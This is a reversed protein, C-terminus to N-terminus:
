RINELTCRISGLTFVLDMQVPLHQSDNTVWARLTERREGYKYDHISIEICDYTKGNDAKIKKRGEYKIYQTVTMLGNVMPVKLEKGAMFDKATFGTGAVKVTSNTNQTEISRLMTILSLLDYIEQTDDVKKTGLVKGDNQVAKLDATYKAASNGAAAGNAAPQTSNSQSFIATEIDHRKNENTAKRYFIGKGDTTQYSTLTDHLEFILSSGSGSNMTLQLKRYQAGTNATGSGSAANKGNEGIIERANLPLANYGTKKESYIGTGVKVNLIGSKVYLNYNVSQASLTTAVLCLAMLTNLITLRKM